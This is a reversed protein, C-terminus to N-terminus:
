SMSKWYLKRLSRKETYLAILLISFFSNQIVWKHQQFEARHSYYHSWWQLSKSRSYFSHLLSFSSIFTSNHSCPHKISSPQEPSSSTSLLYSTVAFTHHGYSSTSVSSSSFFWSFVCSHIQCSSLSITNIKL